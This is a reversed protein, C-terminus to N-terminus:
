TSFDLSFVPKVPRFSLYISGQDFVFFLMNLAINSTFIKTNEHIKHFELLQKFCYQKLVYNVSNPLFTTPVGGGNARYRGTESGYQATKLDLHAHSSM